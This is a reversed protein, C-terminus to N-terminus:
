ANVHQAIAHRAMAVWSAVPLQNLYRARVREGVQAADPRCFYICCDGGTQIEVGLGARRLASNIARKTVKTQM